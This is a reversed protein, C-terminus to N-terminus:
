QGTKSIQARRSKRLPLHVATSRGQRYLRLFTKLSLLLQEDEWFGGEHVFQRTLMAQLLVDQQCGQGSKALLPPQGKVLSPFLAFILLSVFYIRKAIILVKFACNLGYKAQTNGHSGFFALHVAKEVDAKSM